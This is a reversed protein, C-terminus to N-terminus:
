RLCAGTDRVSSLDGALVAEVEDVSLAYAVGPRDPAAAFAVGVVHGQPDVLASGSDGPELESALVLVERQTTGRDYIDRGRATIEDAVRFPSIELPGGGPYGFVGGTDGVAADRLPLAPRTGEARLVALDRDPDFAVVTAGFSSGDTLSLTTEDQGAVVHANTVVLDDAVFFGSGEQLRSCAVGRVKVTSRAVRAAVERDVGSTAPLEGADPARQLGAFVEPFPDDGVLRRLAALTDPADPFAGDLHRAITSGRAQEAVWTPGHALLPLLLWLAVAVGAVGVVGGAAQDARRAAGPPLEQHLQAGLVLGLAQGILATGVLLGVAVLVLTGESADRVRPLVAPLLRAGAVVGLALGAWSAARALFGLRYGGVAAAVAAGVLVADLLNM